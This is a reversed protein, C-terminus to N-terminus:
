YISSVFVSRGEKSMGPLSEQRGGVLSAECGRPSGARILGTAEVMVGWATNENRWDSGEPDAWPWEEPKCYTESM